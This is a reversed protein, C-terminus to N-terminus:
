EILAQELIVMTRILATLADIEAELELNWDLYMCELSYDAIDFGRQFIHFLEDEDEFSSDISIDLGDNRLKNCIKVFEDYEGLCPFLTVKRDKLIKPVRELLLATYDNEGTAIWIMDPDILTMIVASIYRKVIGVPKNTNKLMNEGLFCSRKLHEGMPQQTNVETNYFVNDSNGYKLIIKECKKGTIDKLTISCLNSSEIRLNFSNFVKFIKSYSFFLNLIQALASHLIIKKAKKTM